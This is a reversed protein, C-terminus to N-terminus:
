QERLLEVSYLEISNYPTIKRLVCFPLILPIKGSELAIAYIQKIRRSTNAQTVYRAIYGRKNGVLCWGDSLNNKESSQDRESHSLDICKM